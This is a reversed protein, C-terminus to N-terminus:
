LSGGMFVLRRSARKANVKGADPDTARKLMGFDGNSYQEPKDNAFREGAAVNPASL